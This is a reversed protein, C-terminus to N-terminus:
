SDADEVSIEIGGVFRAATNYLWCGLPVFILGFLAYIFPMVILFGMGPPPEQGPEPPMFYAMLGMPITFLVGMVFYLVSFTKAAQWPAIRTLRRKM